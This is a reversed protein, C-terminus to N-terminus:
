TFNLPSTLAKSRGLAIIQWICTTFVQGFDHPGVLWISVFEVSRTMEKCLLISLWGCIFNFSQMYSDCKEIMAIRDAPTSYYKLKHVDSPQSETWRAWHM